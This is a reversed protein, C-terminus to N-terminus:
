RSAVIINILSLVVSASTLVFTLSERTFGTRRPVYVIDNSNLVVLGAASGGLASELNVEFARGQRVVRTKSLNARETQGGALTVLQILSTGPDVSYLNPNRVEGLVSVRVLPYLALEPNSFGRVRLGEALREKVQAPTLGAARIVGIGPIQVTGGADIQYEGSLESDRYVHLRLLDGARLVGVVRPESDTAAAAAVASQAGADHTPAAFTLAVLMAGLMAGLRLASKRIAFRM